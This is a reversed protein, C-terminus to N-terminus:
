HHLHGTSAQLEGTDSSQSMYLVHRPPLYLISYTSLLGKKRTRVLSAQWRSYNVGIIM